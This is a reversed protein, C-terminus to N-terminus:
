GISQDDVRFSSTAGPPGHGTDPEPGQDPIPERSGVKVKAWVHRLFFASAYVAVGLYFVVMAWGPRGFTTVFAHVMLLGVIDLGVVTLTIAIKARPGFTTAGARWRSLVDEDPPNPTALASTISSARDAAGIPAFCQPCWDLEASARAGCSVCRVTNMGLTDALRLLCIPFTESRSPDSAGWAISPIPPMRNGTEAPRM